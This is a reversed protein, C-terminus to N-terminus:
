IQACKLIHIKIQASKRRSINLDSCLFCLPTYLCLFMRKLQVVKVRSHHDLVSLSLILKRLGKLYRLEIIKFRSRSTVGLRQFYGAGGGGGGDEECCGMTKDYVQFSRIKKSCEIKLVFKAFSKLGEM